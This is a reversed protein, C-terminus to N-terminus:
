HGILLDALGALYGLSGVIFAALLIAGALTWANEIDARQLEQLRLKEEPRLM